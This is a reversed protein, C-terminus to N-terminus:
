RRNYKELYMRFADELASLLAEQQSTTTLMERAFLFFINKIERAAQARAPPAMATIATAVTEHDLQWQKIARLWLGRCPIPDMGIRPAVAATIDRVLREQDPDLEIPSPGSLTLARLKKSDFTFVV